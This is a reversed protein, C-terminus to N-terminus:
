HNMDAEEQRYRKNVRQRILLCILLTSLLQLYFHPFRDTYGYSIEQSLSEINFIIIFCFWIISLLFPSFIILNRQSRSIFDANLYFFPFFVIISKIFYGTVSMYMLAAASKGGFGFYNIVIVILLFINLMSGLVISALYYKGQPLITTPKM